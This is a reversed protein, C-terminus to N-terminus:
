AAFALAVVVGVVLGGLVMWGRSGAPEAAQRARAQQRRALDEADIAITKPIQEGGAAGRQGALLESSDIAITKPDEPMARHEM